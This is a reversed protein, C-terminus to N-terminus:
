TKPRRAQAAEAVPDGCPPVAGSLLSRRLAVPAGSLLLAGSHPLVGCHPAAGCPQIVVSSCPAAGSPTPDGYRLAAGCPRKAGLLRRTRCICAAAPRIM